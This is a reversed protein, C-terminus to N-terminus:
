APPREGFRLLVGSPDRLHVETAGWPYRQAPTLNAEPFELAIGNLHREWDAADDVQVLLVTNRAWDELWRDQLYARLGGLEVTALDDAAREVAFGVRRYFALSTDFNRCPVFPILAHVPPHTPM